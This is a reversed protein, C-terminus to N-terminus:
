MGRTAQLITDKVEQRLAKNIPLKNTHLPSSDPMSSLWGEVYAGVDDQNAFIDVKSADCFFQSIDALLPRSTVFIKLNPSSRGLKGLEDVLANRHNDDDLLEDLADVVVYVRTFGQIVDELAQRVEQRSPRTSKLTHKAHLQTVGPSLSERSLCLQKTLSSLLGLATQEDQRKYDCYIYAVETEGALSHSGSALDEIVISSLITKGAGQIGQCFLVRVDKDRWTQYEASDLFWKGTGPQQKDRHLSHQPGFGIDTLWDLM